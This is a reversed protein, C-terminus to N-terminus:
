LRSSWDDKGWYSKVQYRGGSGPPCEGLNKRGSVMHLLRKLKGRVKCGMVIYCSEGGSNM